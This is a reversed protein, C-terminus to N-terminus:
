WKKDYVFEYYLAIVISISWVRYFGCSVLRGLQAVLDIPM